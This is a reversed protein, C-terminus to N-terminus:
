TVLLKTDNNQSACSNSFFMGANIVPVSFSLISQVIQFWNDIGIERYHQQAELDRCNSYRPRYMAIIVLLFIFIICFLCQLLFNGEVYVSYM